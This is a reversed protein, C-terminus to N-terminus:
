IEYVDIPQSYFRIMRLLTERRLSWLKEDINKQTQQEISFDIMALEDYWNNMILRQQNSLTNKSVQALKQELDSNKELLIQESSPDSMNVNAWNENQLSTSTEVNIFWIGFSLLAFSAAMALWKSQKKKQHRQWIEGSFDPARHAEWETYKEEIISKNDNM